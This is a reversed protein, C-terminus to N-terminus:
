EGKVAEAAFRIAVAAVQIAEKYMRASRRNKPSKKVEDWLEDVEERLVAWGEHASNFKPYKRVARGIEAQLDRLQRSYLKAM